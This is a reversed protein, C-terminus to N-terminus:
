AINIGDCEVIDSDCFSFEQPLDWNLVCDSVSLGKILHSSAM